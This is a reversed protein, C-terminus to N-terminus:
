ITEMETGKWDRYAVHTGVNHGHLCIETGCCSSCVQHGRVEVELQVWWLPSCCQGGEAGLDREFCLQEACCLSLQFGSSWAWLDSVCTRFLWSREQLHKNRVFHYDVQCKVSPSTEDTVSMIWFTMVSSERRNLKKNKGKRMTSRQWKQKPQFSLRVSPLLCFQLILLRLSHRLAITSLRMWQYTVKMRTQRASGWVCKVCLCVCVYVRQAASPECKCIIQWASTLPSAHPRNNEYSSICICNNRCVPQNRLHRSFESTQSPLKICKWQWLAMINNM